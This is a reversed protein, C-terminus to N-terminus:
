TNFIRTKYIAIVKFFANWEVQIPESLDQHVYGSKSVVWADVLLKNPDQEDQAPMLFSYRKSLTVPIALKYDAHIAYVTKTSLSRHPYTYRPM